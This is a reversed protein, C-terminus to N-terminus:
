YKGAIGAPISFPFVGSAKWIKRFRKGTHGTGSWIEIKKDTRQLPLTLLSFKFGAWPGRFSLDCHLPYEHLCIKQKHRKCSHVTVVGFPRKIITTHRTTSTYSCKLSGAGIGRWGVTSLVATFQSQSWCVLCSRAIFLFATLKKWTLKPEKKM